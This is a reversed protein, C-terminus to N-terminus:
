NLSVRFLSGSQAWENMLHFKLPQAMCINFSNSKATIARSLGICKKFLPFKKQALMQTVRADFHKWTEVVVMLRLSNERDVYVKQLSHFCLAALYYIPTYGIHTYGKKIPFLPSNIKGLMKGRFFLLGSTSVASASTPFSEVDPWYNVTVIFIYCTHLIRTPAWFRRFQQHWPQFTFASAIIVYTYCPCRLPSTYIM